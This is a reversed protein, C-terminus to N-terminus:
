LLGVVLAASALVIPITAILISMRTRGLRSALIAGPLMAALSAALIAPVVEWRPQVESFHGSATALMIMASIKLTNICATKFTRISMRGYITTQIVAGFAGLAAAETPAAWGLLITGALGVILSLMTLWKSYESLFSLEINM